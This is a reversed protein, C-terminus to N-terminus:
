LFLEELSMFLNKLKGIKLENKLMKWQWFKKELMIKMLRLLFRLKLEDKEM